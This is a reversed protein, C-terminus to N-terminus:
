NKKFNLKKRLIQIENEMRKLRKELANKNKLSWERDLKWNPNSTYDYDNGYSIKKFLDAFALQEVRLKKHINTQDRLIKLSLHDGPKANKVITRLSYFSEFEKNDCSLIVDGVLLGAKEAPSSAFVEKIQPTVANRHVEKVTIGIWGRDKQYKECIAHSAKYIQEVPVVLVTNGPPVMSTKNQSYAIRGSVIGIVNGDANLVPAGNAGPDITASIEILGDDYISTVNGISLAPSVGFSNGIVLVWSGKKATNVGAYSQTPLEPSDIKLLAIGKENDIGIIDAHIEKGTWLRIRVGKAGEVISSRTAIFGQRNLYLGSGILTYLKEIQETESVPVNALITVVSPVAQQVLEDIETEFDSQASVQTNSILILASIASIKAGHFFNHSQLNM